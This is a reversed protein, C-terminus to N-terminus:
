LQIGVPICPGVQMKQALKVVKGSLDTARDPREQEARQRRVAAAFCSSSPSPSPAPRRPRPVLASERRQRDADHDKGQQDPAVWVVSLGAELRPRRRRVRIIRLLLLSEPRWSVVCENVGVNSSRAGHYLANM